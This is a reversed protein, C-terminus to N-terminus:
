AQPPPGEVEIQTSRGPIVSLAFVAAAVLANNARALGGVDPMLLAAWALVLALVANVFRLGRLGPSALAFTGVLVAMLGTLAASAETHPLAFASVLLWAALAMNWAVFRM